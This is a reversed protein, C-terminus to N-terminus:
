RGSLQEMLRHMPELVMGMRIVMKVPNDGAYHYADLNISNFVGGMGPLKSNREKAKDNVPPVPM